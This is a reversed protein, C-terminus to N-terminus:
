WEKVEEGGSRTRSHAPHSAGYSEMLCTHIEAVKHNRGILTRCCNGLLFSKVGNTSGLKTAFANPERGSLTEWFAPAPVPQRPIPASIWTQVSEDHYAPSRSKNLIQEYVKGDMNWTDNASHLIISVSFM